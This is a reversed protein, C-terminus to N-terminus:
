SLDRKIREYEEKNIEGRAYRKGLIELATESHTGVASSEHDHSGEIGVIGHLLCMGCM